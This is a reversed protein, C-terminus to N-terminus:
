ETELRLEEHTQYDASYLPITVSGGLEAGQFILAITAQSDGALESPGLTSTALIEGGASDSYAGEGNALGVDEGNSSVEALVFLAGSQVSQYAYLLEATGLGGSEVVEGDGSKLRDDLEEGDVTFDVLKGDAGELDAWTVCSEEAGDPECGQYGGDVESVEGQAPAQGGDLSATAIALNYGAYVEAISGPGALPLAEELQDPDRSAIAAFYTQLDAASPLGGDASASPSDSGSPAADEDGCGALTLSAIAAVAVAYRRVHPRM